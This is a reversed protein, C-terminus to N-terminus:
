RVNKTGALVVYVTKFLIKIDMWVSRNKIYELDYLLKEEPRIDYAGEVQALGTIGPKVKLREHFGHIYKEFADYYVAREPRPGIISMTGSLCCFLQPLEDIRYKRLLQGIPTVRPDDDGSCWQAGDKEADMRMTRFKYMMYPKGGLGLREQKHLVTGPSTVKIAIAVALMPIACIALGFLSILIDSCRSLFAHVPKVKLEGLTEVFYEEGPKVEYPLIVTEECSAANEMDTQELVGVGSSM